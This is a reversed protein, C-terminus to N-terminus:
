TNDDNDNDDDDDDDNDNYNKSFMIIKSRSLIGNALWKCNTKGLQVLRDRGCVCAISNTGWATNASRTSADDRIATSTLRISLANCAITDVFILVERVLGSAERNGDTRNTGLM